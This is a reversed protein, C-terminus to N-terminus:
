ARYHVGGTGDVLVASIGLAPREGDMSECTRDSHKLRAYTLQADVEGPTTPLDDLGRQFAFLGLEGAMSNMAKPPM